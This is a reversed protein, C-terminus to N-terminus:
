SLCGLLYDISCNLFINVANCHAYQRSSVVCQKGLNYFQESIIICGVYKNYSSPYNRSFVYRKEFLFANRLYKRRSSRRIFSNFIYLVYCVLMPRKHPWHSQKNSKRFFHTFRAPPSAISIRLLNNFPSLRAAALSIVIISFLSASATSISFSKYPCVPFAYTIPIVPGGPAPLLVRVSLSTFCRLFCFLFIAIIATSGVLGNVPPAIRPSLTRIPSRLVSGPTKILLM